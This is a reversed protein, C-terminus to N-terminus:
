APELAAMRSRIHDAACVTFIAGVATAVLHYLNGKLLSVLPNGRWGSLYPLLGMLVVVVGYMLILVSRLRRYGASQDVGPGQRKAWTMAVFLPPGWSWIVMSSGNAGETLSVALANAALSALSLLLFRGSGLLRECPRGCEFIMFTNLALHISGHLGPWGHEFTATFPQWWHQRPRIGGFIDYLSPHILTPITVTLCCAFFAYTVVPRCQTPAYLAELALAARAAEEHGQKVETKM